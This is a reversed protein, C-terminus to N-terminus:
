YGGILKPWVGKEFVAVRERRVRTEETEGYEGGKKASSSEELSDDSDSAGGSERRSTLPGGFDPLVLPAFERRLESDLSTGM